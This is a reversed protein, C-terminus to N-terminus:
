LLSGFGIDKVAQRQEAFLQQVLRYVSKPSTRAKWFTNSDEETIKRRKHSIEVCYEDSTGM